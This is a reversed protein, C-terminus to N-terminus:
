TFMFEATMKCSVNPVLRVWQASFADPFFVPHYEGGTLKVTDYRGWTGNGLFDVEIEVSGSKESILHLVKRRFDTFLFPDSPQGATVMDNRWPGGWGQPKGWSWLDDSKGFWIGSQPQGSVANNDENPSTENGGMALLGRFSCYDPITRLHQCVPKVGWIHDEFAIPQLEYFMGQIDMMYHETEIERIRMWETQWGQEFAHSAKPLRYLQWNGKVLARLLVSREDWGTCFMVSGMNGRAAVDMHPKDSIRQWLKGGDWEFLGGQTQGYAFFGNNSVVVRNQATYGGKFHPQETIKMMETLNFLLRPKLDSIDMEFVLGEMTVFYVRNEPDTLHPMTSTLRHEVLGEIRKWKGSADIVYPGIICQNSHHHIFRNAYVGDPKDLSEPKLSDDLRYLGLGTGTKKGSSNYTVAYLGDAWPMLAGVGCETRRPDSNGKLGVNPIGPLFSQAFAYGTTGALAALVARRSMSTVASKM